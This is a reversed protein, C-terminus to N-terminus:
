HSSPADLMTPALQLLLVYLRSQTMHGNAVNGHDRKQSTTDTFGNFCYFYHSASRVCSNFQIFKDFVRHNLFWLFIFILYERFLSPAELLDLSFVAGPFELSLANHEFRQVTLPANNCLAKSLEATKWSNKPHYNLPFLLNLFKLDLWIHEFVFAFNKIEIKSYLQFNNQHM